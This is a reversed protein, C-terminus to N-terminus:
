GCPVPVRKHIIHIHNHIYTCYVKKLSYVLRTCIRMCKYMNMYVILENIIM